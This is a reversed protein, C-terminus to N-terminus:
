DRIVHISRAPGLLLPQRISGPLRLSAVLDGVAIQRGVFRGTVEARELMAWNEVVVFDGAEDQFEGVKDADIEVFALHPIKERIAGSMAAINMPGRQVILRRAGAVIIREVLLAIAAAILRTREWGERAEVAHAHQGTYVLYRMLFTRELLPLDQAAAAGYALMYPPLIMNTILGISQNLDNGDVAAAFLEWDARLGDQYFSTAIQSELRGATEAHQYLAKAVVRVAGHDLLQGIMRMFGFATDDLFCHRQAVTRRLVGHTLMNANRALGLKDDGTYRGPFPPLTVSQTTKLESDRREYGGFVAVCEADGSLTAVAEILAEPILMDDDSLVFAFESTAQWMAAYINRFVGVDTPQRVYRLSTFRPQWAAVVDGTGDDSANDSVVIESFAHRCELLHELTRWLLPARNRTPICISLPLSM